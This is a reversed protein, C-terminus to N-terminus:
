AAAKREASAPLWACRCNPHLPILGRAEEITFLSGEMSECEVCVRDDGATAWEVAGTVKSIGLKEYGDLQGEAHARIIETRALVRARRKTISKIQEVMTKAIERPHSGDVLGQAM